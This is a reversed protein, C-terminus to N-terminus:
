HAGVNITMSGPTISSTTPNCLSWNLTNATPWLSISLGGSSGYGTVATPNTAFASTFTSTTTVGTMTVTAPTSCTNAALATTPLVIQVNAISAPAAGGDVCNGNADITVIHGSTFTGTCALVKTGTTGQIGTMYQSGAIALSGTDITSTANRALLTTPTTVTGDDVVNSGYTCTGLDYQVGGINRFIELTTGSPWGSQASAYCPTTVKNSASLAAANTVTVATGPPTLQGSATKAAFDYGYTNSGATGSYTPVPLVVPIAIGVQLSAITAQQSVDVEGLALRGDASVNTTSDNVCTTGLYLASNWWPNCYTFNRLTGQNSDFVLGFGFAQSGKVTLGANFSGAASATLTTTTIGSTATFVGSSTLTGLISVGGPAFFRYSLSSPQFLLTAGGANGSNNFMPYWTTSTCNSGIGFASDGAAPPCGVNIISGGNVPGFPLYLATKYVDSLTAMNQVPPLTGGLGQYKNRPNLGRLIFPAYTGTAGNGSYNHQISYPSVGNPTPSNQVSTASDDGSLVSSPHPEELSDGTTWNVANHGLKFWGDIALMPKKLYAQTGVIAPDAVDVVAAMPYISYGNLGVLAASCGTTTGNSGSNAYTITALNTNPDNPNITPTVTGDFSADACGTIAVSAFNNMESVQNNPSLTATVTNSSRTISSM